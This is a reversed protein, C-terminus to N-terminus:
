FMLGASRDLRAEGGAMSKLGAAEAIDKPIVSYWSGSDALFGTERERSGDLTGIIVGIGAYDM